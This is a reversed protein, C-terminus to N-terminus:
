LKVVPTLNSSVIVFGFGGALSQKPQATPRDKQFSYAQNKRTCAEIMRRQKRNM